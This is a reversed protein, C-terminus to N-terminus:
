WVAGSVHMLRQGRLFCVRNGGGKQEPIAQCVDGGSTAAMLIERHVFSAEKSHGDRRCGLDEAM